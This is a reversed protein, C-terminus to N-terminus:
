GVPSDVHFVHGDGTSLRCLPKGRSPTLLWKVTITVDTFVAAVTNMTVTFGEECHYDVSLYNGLQPCPEGFSKVAKAIQCVQRGQCHATLSEVVNVWGCQQTSATATSTTSQCYHVNKRGYFGGDIVLVQGSACQLATNWGACVIARRSEFQCMFSLKKDCDRTAEWQFGSHKLIHGCAAGPQPSSAWNSFTIHSDDLWSLPGEAAASYQLNLSAARAVGIWMDREPDLHKQLFYQTNEDQIFALHGGSEECWAQASVFSHHHAVFEFCSGLFARQHERCFVDEASSRCGLTVLILLELVTRCM